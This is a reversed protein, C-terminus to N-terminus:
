SVTTVTVERPLPEPVATKVRPKRTPATTSANPTRRLQTIVELVIDQDTPSLSRFDDLVSTRPHKRNDMFLSHEREASPWGLSRDPWGHRLIM